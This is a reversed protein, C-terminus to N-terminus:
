RAPERLKQSSRTLDASRRLAIVAQDVNLVPRGDVTTTGRFIFTDGVARTPEVHHLLVDGPRVAGMLRVGSMGGFLMLADEADPDPRDTALLLSAAQCWSEVVLTPPYDYASDPADDPVEAYWPENRTVAKVATLERGPVLSLVRDVLLIPYRHPLRGTIDAPTLGAPATM